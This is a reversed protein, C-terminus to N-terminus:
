TIRNSLGSANVIINFFSAQFMTTGLACAVTTEGETEHVSSAVRVSLYVSLGHYCLGGCLVALHGCVVCRRRTIVTPPPPIIRM